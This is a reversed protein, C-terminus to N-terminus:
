TKVLFARKLALLGDSTGHLKLGAMKRHATSAMGAIRFDPRCQVPCRKEGDPIFADRGRVALPM